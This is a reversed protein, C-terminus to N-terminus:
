RPPVLSELPAGSADGAFPNVGSHAGVSVTILGTYICALLRGAADGPNRMTLMLERWLLSRLQLLWGAGSHSLKEMGTIAPLTADTLSTDGRTLKAAAPLDGQDISLAAPSTDSSDSSTGAGAMAKVTLGSSSAAGASHASFAEAAAAIDFADSSGAAGGEEDIPAEPHQGGAPHVTGALVDMIWDSPIGHVSPQYPLRLSQTFWSEMGSPAGMYLLRGGALIFVKDLLEWIAMRPQHISLLCPRGTAAFAKICQM